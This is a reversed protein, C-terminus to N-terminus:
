QQGLNSVAVLQKTKSKVMASYRAPTVGVLKKFHRILHSQDAFGVESAAQDAPQGSKLLHRAKEIRLGIQYAHPPLGFERTFAHQFHFRSLGSIQALEALSIKEAFHQKLFDRTWRLCQRSPQPLSRPTQECSNTLLASICDLLLSERHLPTSQEMLGVHFRVFVRYLAQEGTVACKFHPNLRMGAQLSIDNFLKPDIQIVSFNCPPPTKTNRHIEGPELLMLTRAPNHHIGRRYTWEAAGPYPTCNQNFFEDLNCITYTQHYICWPRQNNQVSLIEVGPLDSPVSWVIKEKLEM